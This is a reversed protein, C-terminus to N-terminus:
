HGGRTEPSPGEGAGRGCLCVGPGRRKVEIQLCGRAFTKRMGDGPDLQPAERILVAESIGGLFEM